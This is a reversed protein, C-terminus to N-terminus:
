CDVCTIPVCSKHYSLAHAACQLERATLVLTHTRVHAVKHPDDLHFHHGANEVGVVGVACNTFYARRDQTRSDTDSRLGLLKLTRDALLVLTPCTIDGFFEAM